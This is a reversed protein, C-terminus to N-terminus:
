KDALLLEAQSMCIRLVTFELCISYYQEGYISDNQNLTPCDASLSKLQLQCVRLSKTLSSNLM